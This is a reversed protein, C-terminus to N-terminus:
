HIIDAAPQLQPLGLNGLVERNEFSHHPPQYLRLRARLLTEVSQARLRHLLKM